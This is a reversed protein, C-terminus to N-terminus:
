IASPFSKKRTTQNERTLIMRDVDTIM